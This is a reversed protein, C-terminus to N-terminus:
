RASGVRDIWFGFVAYDECTNILGRFAELYRKHNPSSLVFAIDMGLYGAVRAVKRYHDIEEAATRDVILQDIKTPASLLM